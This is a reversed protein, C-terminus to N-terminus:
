RGFANAILIFNEMMRAAMRGARRTTAAGAGPGSGTGSTRSPIDLDCDM